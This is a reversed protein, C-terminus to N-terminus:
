CGACPVVADVGTEVEPFEVLEVASGSVGGFGFRLRVRERRLFFVPSLVLAGAACVM